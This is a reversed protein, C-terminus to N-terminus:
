VLKGTQHAVGARILHEADHRGILEVTGRRIKRRAGTMTALEAGDKVARVEVFVSKPPALASDLVVDSSIQYARILAVYENFYQRESEALDASRIGNTSPAASWYLSEVACARHHLYALACRRNRWISEICYWILAAASPPTERKDNRKLIPECQAFLENCEAAIKALADASYPPLFKNSQKLERLLDTAIEGAAGAGSVAVTSM